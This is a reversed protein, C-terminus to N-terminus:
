KKAYSSFHVLIIALLMLTLLVEGTWNKKLQLIFNATFVALPLTTLILIPMGIFPNLFITGMALLFCWFLLSMTKKTKLPMVVTSNSLRLLSSLITAGFIIYLWSYSLSHPFLFHKAGSQWNLEDSVFTRLEDKCFYYTLAYVWPLTFGFLAVVYERWIFPRFLILTIWVFLFFLTSPLYLLSSLGILMGANFTESLASDKRYTNFLEHCAAVLLLNVLTAAHFQLLDGSLANYTLYFLATLYTKKTLLNHHNVIYNLWFATLLNLLLSFFVSVYYFHGIFSAIGLFLPMQSYSTVFAPAHGYLPCFAWLFLGFFSVKLIAAPSYTKFSGILM